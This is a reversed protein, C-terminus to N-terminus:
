HVVRDLRHARGAGPGARCAYLARVARAATILWGAVCALSARAPQLRHAPPVRGTLLDPDHVRQAGSIIEEGRIFVDYSNSYNPDDPCPMTYFPRVALPYRRVVVCASDAACGRQGGTEASAPPGSSRVRCPLVRQCRRGLFLSLHQPLAFPLLRAGSAFVRRHLIYFDTGYQQKVLKGLM